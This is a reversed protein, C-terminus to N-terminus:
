HIQILRSDSRGNELQLRLLYIGSELGNLPVKIESSGIADLHWKRVTKGNLDVIEVDSKLDNSEASIQMAIYNEAPNPFVAFSSAMQRTNLMPDTNQIRSIWTGQGRNANGYSGSMWVEGSRNYRRQIGTYDGWREIFNSSLVDITNEGRKVTVRESFNGERDLFIVSNGPYENASTHLCNIIASRDIGGGGAYAISPYNLDLSDSTFIKVRCLPNETDLKEIMGYYIAPRDNLPSRTNGVFSVKGHHIFAGHIDAYNTRLPDTTDPQIAHPPKAYPLDAIVVKHSLEAKGSELTNSIKFLFISDNEEDIGRNAVFYMHPGYSKESGWVPRTNWVQRNNIMISDYYRRTVEEGNYGALKDLQWIIESAESDWGSEGNKWLLVPIFLETKTIGIFPYDSWRNNNHVNGDLVYFNWDGLPDSSQSFGVILHTNDSSYGSLFVLIFRDYEPDYITHPDYASQWSGVESAIRSLPRVGLTTGSSDFVRINSNVASFIIGDNSIAINNDNPTGSSFNGVFNATILPEYQKKKLRFGDSSFEKSHFIPPKADQERYPKVNLVPDSSIDAMSITRALPMVEIDSARYDFEQAYIRISLLVFSLIFLKKM